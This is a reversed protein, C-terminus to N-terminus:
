SISSHAKPVLRHTILPHVPHLHVFSVKAQTSGEEHLVTIPAADGVASALKTFAPGPTAAKKKSKKPAAKPAAKQKVEVVEYEDDEGEADQSSSDPDPSSVPTAPEEVVKKSKPKQHEDTM